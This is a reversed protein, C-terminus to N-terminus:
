FVEPEWPLNVGSVVVTLMHVSTISASVVKWRRKISLLQSSKRKSRPLHNRRFHSLCFETCQLLNKIESEKDTHTLSHQEQPQKANPFSISNWSFITQRNSTEVWFDPCIEPWKRGFIKKAQFSIAKTELNEDWCYLLRRNILGVKRERWRDTTRRWTDLSPISVWRCQTRVQNTQLLSHNQIQHTEGHEQLGYIQLVTLYSM